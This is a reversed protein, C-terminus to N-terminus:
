VGEFIEIREGPALTVIAKKWSRTTGEIIGRRTRRVKRKGRVNMTNVDLVHVDFLEEVARKIMPKNAGPAVEFTYKGLEMLNTNKETIVPRIIIEYANM